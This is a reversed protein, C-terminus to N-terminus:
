SVERVIGKPSANPKIPGKSSDSFQNQKVKPMKPVKFKKATPMKPSAMKPTKMKVGVSNLKKEWRPIAKGNEDKHTPYNETKGCIGCKPRKETNAEPMMFGHKRGSGPGGAELELLKITEALNPM